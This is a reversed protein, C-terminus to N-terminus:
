VGRVYRLILESMSHVGILQHVRAVYVRATGERIGMEYAIQKVSRGELVHAVALLEHKRLRMADSIDIPANDSLPSHDANVQVTSDGHGLASM